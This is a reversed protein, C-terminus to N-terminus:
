PMRRTQTARPGLFATFSHAATPFRPTDFDIVFSLTGFVRFSYRPCVPKHHHEIATDINSQLHEISAVPM